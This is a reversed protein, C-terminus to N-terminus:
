MHMEEGHDGAAGQLVPVTFDFTRVEGKHKIQLFIKYDGGFPFTTMFSLTGTQAQDLGHAYATSIFPTLAAAHDHEDTHPHIHIYELTGNRVIVAHGYAGLYPELDTVLAGNERITFTLTEMASSRINAPNVTLRAEYDGNKSEMSTPLTTEPPYASSVGAAVDEYIVNNEKGNPTFDAFIRYAGDTPLTIDPLSFEGTSPNLTPHLHEFIGLDKRVVILHLLKEHVTKFDKEVVGSKSVIFFSYPSPTGAIFAPWAGTHALCYSEGERPVCHPTADTKGGFATLSLWTAVIGLFVIYLAKIKM